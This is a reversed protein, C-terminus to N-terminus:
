WWPYFPLDVGATIPNSGPPVELFGNSEALAAFDGSGHYAVCRAQLRGEIGPSAVVPVFLTLTRNPTINDATMIRAPKAPTAGMSLSIFPAVYRCFVALTSVPNGPLGFIRCSETRGFWLPKGPKQAVRHFVEEAGSARLAAPVFDFEGMSVGGSLILIDHAALAGAVANTTEMLDDRLHLSTVETVGMAALGARLATVNSARVQTPRIIETAPSVIEDGTTILAVKPPAAVRVHVHGVAALIAIRPADLRCGASLLLDGASRDIGRRHIFQGSEFSADPNAAATKGDVRVQEIPIIGDCNDPLEAGTMIHVCGGAPDRLDGAPHGAAVIAEIRWNRAGASWSSGNIAIGDMTARHIPPYDRDAYIPEALIHGRASALDVTESRAPPAFSLVTEFAEAVTLM